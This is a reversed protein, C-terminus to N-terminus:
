THQKDVLFQSRLFKLKRSSFQKFINNLCLSCWYVWCSCLINKSLNHRTSLRVFLFANWFRKWILKKKTRIKTRKESSFRKMFIIFLIYFSAHKFLSQKISLLGISIFLTVFRFVRVQLTNNVCRMLFCVEKGIWWFSSFFAVVVKMALSKELSSNILLYRKRFIQKLLSFINLSFYFYFFVSLFLLLRISIKLTM